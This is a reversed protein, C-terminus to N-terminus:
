RTWIIGDNHSNTKDGGQLMFEKEWLSNEAVGFNPEPPFGRTTENQTVHGSNSNKRHTCRPSPLSLGPSVLFVPEGAPGRHAGQPGPHAVPRLCPTQSGETRGPCTRREPGTVIVDCRVRQAGEPGQWKSVVPQSLQINASKSVMSTPHGGLLSSPAITCM